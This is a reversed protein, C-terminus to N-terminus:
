NKPANMKVALKTIEVLHDKEKEFRAEISKLEITFEKNRIQKVISNYYTEDVSIAEGCKPCKIEKM